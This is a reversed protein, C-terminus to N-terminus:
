LERCDTGSAILLDSDGGLKRKQGPKQFWWEGLERSGVM